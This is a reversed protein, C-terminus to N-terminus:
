RTLAAAAASMLERLLRRQLDIADSVDFLFFATAHALPVGFSLSPCRRARTAFAGTCDNQLPGSM